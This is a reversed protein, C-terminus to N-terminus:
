LLETQTNTAFRSPISLTTKEGAICVYLCNPKERLFLNNDPHRLFLFSLNSTFWTLYYLGLITPYVTCYRTCNVLQISFFSSLSFCLIESNGRARRKSHSLLMVLGTVGPAVCCLVRCLVPCPTWRSWTVGAIWDDWTLKDSLKQSTRGSYQLENEEGGNQARSLKKFLISIFFVVKKIHYLSKVELWM